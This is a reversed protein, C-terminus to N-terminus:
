VTLLQTGIQNLYNAKPENTPKNTQQATAEVTMCMTIDSCIRSLSFSIGNKENASKQTERPESEILDYVSNKFPRVRLKTRSKTQKERM